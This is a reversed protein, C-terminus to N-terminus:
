VDGLYALTGRGQEGLKASSSAGFALPLGSLLLPAPVLVPEPERCRTHCDPEDALRALGRLWSPGARLFSVVAASTGANTSRSQTIEITRPCGASFPVECRLSRQMPHHSSLMVAGRGSGPQPLMAACGSRSEWSMGCRAARCSRSGRSGLRCQHLSSFLSPPSSSVRAVSCREGLPWCGTGATDRDM